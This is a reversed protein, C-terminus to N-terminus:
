SIAAKPLSSNDSNSKRPSLKTDSHKGKTPALTNDNKIIRKCHGDVFAGPEIALSDHEIDGTMQATAALFVSNAKVLGKMAGHIRVTQALVHGSVLGKTGIILAKCKIDGDVKGDIQIEGNSTLNGKVNLDDSIISPVYRTQGNNMKNEQKKDQKLDNSNAKNSFM